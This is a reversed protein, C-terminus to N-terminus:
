YAGLRLAIVIITRLFIKIDTQISKRKIYEVDLQVRQEYSINNRGSIQWLGTIGPKVSLLADAYKGYKVLEESTVPRPGVISMEGKFVNIFQPLEDLSTKRLLRGFRTVRPDNKLKFDAEFEAQQEPTFNCKLQEANNVMTRFKYLFFENGYLGIRKHRYIVPGESTIRILLAIILMCPSLLIVLMSSLSIDFLRKLISQSKKFQECYLSDSIIM